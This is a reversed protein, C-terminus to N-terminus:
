YHNPRIEMAHPLLMGLVMGTMMLVYSTLVRISPDGLPLAQATLSGVWMGACMGPVGLVLPGVCCWRRWSFREPTQRLLYMAPVGLAIMGVYMWHWSSIQQPAHCCSMAVGDRVASTFGLDAWWGLNMGLGGISIMALTMDAWASLRSSRRLMYWTAASFAGLAALAAPWWFAGLVVLIVAQGMMGVWHVLQYAGPRIMYGLGQAPVAFDGPPEVPVIRFSQWSVLASSCAMLVAAIIPHLYGAAAITIGVLNYTIAWRLNSRITAVARRSLQIGEAIVNLDGGHLTASATELAISAGSALAISVHSAAMAAADNIGDGVFLPRRFQDKADDRLALVAQHKQEPTMGIITQGLGTAAGDSIDGTMIKVGLGMTALKRVAAEATDRLRERLTVTAAWEGDISLRVHIASKDDGPDRTIEVLHRADGQELRVPTKEGLKVVAQVGRGPLTRLSLVEVNWGEATPLSALAKAVPHTSCREIAAMVALALSRQRADGATQIEVIILQENGLTGTKDFIIGDVSALREIADGSGLVL